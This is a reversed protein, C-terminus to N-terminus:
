TALRSSPRWKMSIPRLACLCRAGVGAPREPEPAAPHRATQSEAPLSALVGVALFAFSMLRPDVRIM